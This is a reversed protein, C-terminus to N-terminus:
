KKLPFLLKQIEPKDFNEKTVVEVGTDIRKEVKKGHKADIATLVGDHGMRYPNQVIMAQISGRKFAALEAPVADFAVHIVKGSLKKQEIVRACGVAGPGCASFIAKIKPHATLMDETAAIGRQEDCNSFLTAVVKINPYKKIGDKFGKERMTSTAAGPVIPEIGIDGKEGIMKALVDAAKKAGDINDTAVFCDADDSDIGSDITVVPIGAKKAKQVTPILAKSNCAALVIGDVHQTIYNEIISIQAAIDTEKAPGNWLIKAGSEEGAAEAGAKVTQWFEHSTSKPVVAIVLQKKGGSNSAQKQSCGAVLSIVMLTLLFRCVLKM